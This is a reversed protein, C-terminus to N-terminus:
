TTVLSAPLTSKSIGSHRAEFRNSQDKNFCSFFTSVLVHDRQLKTNLLYSALAESIDFFSKHFLHITIIAIIFAIIFSTFRISLIV